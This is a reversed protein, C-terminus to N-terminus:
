RAVKEQMSMRANLDVIGKFHNANVIHFTLARELRDLYCSLDPATIDVGLEYIGDGLPLEIDYNLCLREGARFRRTEENRWNTTTTYVRQGDPTRIFLSFIPYDVDENFRVQVQVGADSGSEFVSKSQEHEDCLKVEEIEAEFTMVRSSLGDENASVRANSNRAAERVVDSYAVVANAASGQFVPRGQYMVMGKECVQRVAEMNHTVFILSTGQKRLEEMRAYCKTKFSYDGVALVEDVLLIDPEVHAAISFGLRAYMGSSYRKVPTDIYSDIGSFEVIEDFRKEVEERKMGLIAGNLFVNERGTLDPHFGAGLEILASFRGNMNISGSTPYTVRSLLKLITTKGAGNPGVIGLSEGPMLTFNVDDVAWHYAEDTVGRLRAPLDRLRFVGRGVRYRKRLNKVEIHPQMHEKYSM